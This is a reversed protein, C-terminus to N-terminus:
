PTRTWDAEFSADAPRGLTPLELGYDLQVQHPHGTILYVIGYAADGTKSNWLLAHLEYWGPSGCIKSCDVVAYPYLTWSQGDFVVHGPAASGIDLLAGHARFGPVPAPATMSVAPWSVTASATATSTCSGKMPAKSVTSSTTSEWYVYTLSPGTCYFWFVTWAHAEVALAQYLILSYGSWPIKKYVLAAVDRRGLSVTGYRSRIEVKSVVAGTGSIDIGFSDSDVVSLAPWTIAGPSPTM